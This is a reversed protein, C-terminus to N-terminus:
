PTPEDRWSVIWTPNITAIVEDMLATISTNEDLRIGDIGGQVPDFKSDHQISKASDFEYHTPGAITLRVRITHRITDKQAIRISEVVRTYGAPAAPVLEVSTVGNLSGYGNGAEVERESRHLLSM